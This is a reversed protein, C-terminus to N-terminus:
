NMQTMGAGNITITNEGLDSTITITSIASPVGTLSNFTVSSIGSITVGAPMAYDERFNPTACSGNFLRFTTGTICVGWIDNGGITKGDMAYAQAKWIESTVRDVAVHWNNRVLFSGTFPMATASILLLLAIVLLIEIFTIGKM